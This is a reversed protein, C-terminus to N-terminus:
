KNNSLDKNRSGMSSGFYFFIIATSLTKFTEIISNLTTSDVSKIESSKLIMTFFMSVTAVLIFTAILESINRNLWSSNVNTVIAVQRDRASKKDEIELETLKLTAELEKNFQENDLTQQRYLAEESAKQSALTDAAREEKSYILEDTTEKVADLIKGDGKGLLLSLFPSM